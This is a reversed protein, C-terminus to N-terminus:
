QWVREFSYYSEVISRAGANFSDHVVGDICAMVHSNISLICRRPLTGSAILQRVTTGKLRPRYQSYDRKTDLSHWKVFWDGVVCGQSARAGLLNIFPVGHKPKRGCQVRLMEHAVDYPMQGAIALARVTCDNDEGRVKTSGPFADCHVLKLPYKSVKRHKVRKAPQWMPVQNIEFPM